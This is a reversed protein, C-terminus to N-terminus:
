RGFHERLERISYFVPVGKSAAHAVERDAGPSDGPLRLVAHCVDIWAFDYDLWDEYATPRVMDWLQSLHPVFPAYGAALLEAGVNIAHHVNHAIVGRTMPAAVYVLPRTM